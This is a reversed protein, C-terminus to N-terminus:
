YDISDKGMFKSIIILKAIKKQRMTKKLTISTDLRNGSHRQVYFFDMINLFNKPRYIQLIIEM